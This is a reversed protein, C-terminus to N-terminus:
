RDTHMYTCIARSVRRRLSVPWTGLEAIDEDNVYEGFPELTKAKAIIYRQLKNLRM